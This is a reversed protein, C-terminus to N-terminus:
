AEFATYIVLSTINLEKNVNRLVLGSDELYHLKPMMLSLYQVATGPTQPVPKKESLLNHRQAACFGNRSDPRPGAKLPLCAPLCAFSHHLTM